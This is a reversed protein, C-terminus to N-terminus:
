NPRTQCVSEAPHRADSRGPPGQVSARLAHLCTSAFAVWTILRKQYEYLAMGSIRSFRLAFTAVENMSDSSAPLLLPRTRTHTTM